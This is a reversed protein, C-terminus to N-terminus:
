TTTRGVHLFLMACKILRPRYRAACHRQNAGAGMGEGVVIMEVLDNAIVGEPMVDFGAQGTPSLYVSFPSRPGVGVTASMWRRTCNSRHYMSLQLKRSSMSIITLVMASTM